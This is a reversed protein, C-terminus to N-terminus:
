ALQGSVKTLSNVPTHIYLQSTDSSWCGLTKILHNPVGRSVAATAAGIRFSHGSDYCPYGDPHLISQMTSSLLQWLVVTQIACYLGWLVAVFHLSTVLTWWQVGRAGARTFTVAWAFVTRSRASSSSESVRLIWCLMAKCM